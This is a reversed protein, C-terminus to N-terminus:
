KERVLAARYRLFSRQPNGLARLLLATAGVVGGLLASLLYHFVRSESLPRALVLLVVGTALRAAYVPVSISSPIARVAATWWAEWKETVFLMAGGVIGEDDGGDGGDNGSGDSVREGGRSVNNNRSKKNTMTTTTTATKTSITGTEENTNFFTKEGAARMSVLPVEYTLFEVASSSIATDAGRKGKSKDAAGRGM